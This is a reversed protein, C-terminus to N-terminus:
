AYGSARFWDIAERVADRVAVRPAGFAAWADSCDAPARQCLLDAGFRYPIPAHRGVLRLALDAARASRSVAGFSLTWRPAQRGAIEAVMGAV